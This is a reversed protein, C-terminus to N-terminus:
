AYDARYPHCRQTVFSKTHWSASTTPVTRRLTFLVAEFLSLVKQLAKHKPARVLLLCGPYVSDGLISPVAPDGTVLESENNLTLSSLDPRKGSAEM